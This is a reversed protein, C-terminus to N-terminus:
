AHWGDMNQNVLRGVVDGNDNIGYALSHAWGLTGLDQMGGSWRFAHNTLDPYAALHSAGVAQGNDNIGYGYSHDGGLTGLDGMSGNWVFAHLKYAANDSHGVVQGANNIGTALSVSGGPFTGLDQMAGNQWLFARQRGSGNYSYGVVQGADNVGLAVSSDGGLTGLGQMVGDNWLFAQYNNGALYKGAVQGNNSIAFAESAGGLTGLDTVTYRPKAAPSAPQVPQEKEALATPPRQAAGIPILLTAILLISLLSRKM